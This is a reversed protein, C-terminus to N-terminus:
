APTYWRFAEEIQPVKWGANHNIIPAIPGRNALDGTYLESGHILTRNMGSFSVLKYGLELIPQQFAVENVTAARPFKPECPFVTLGGTADVQSLVRASTFTFSGDLCYVIDRKTGCLEQVQDATVDHGHAEVSNGVAGIDADSHFLTLIELLWDDKAPAQDDETFLYYDYMDLDKFHEWAFKWAGFGYGENERDFIRYGAKRFYEVDNPMHSGNNILVVDYDVGAAFHKHAALTKKLTEFKDEVFHGYDKKRAQPIYLPIVCLIKGKATHRRPDEYQAEHMPYLTCFFRGTRSSLGHM